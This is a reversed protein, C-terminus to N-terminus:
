KRNKLLKNMRAPIVINANCQGCCVGRKYPEANHGHSEIIRGCICCKEKIKM